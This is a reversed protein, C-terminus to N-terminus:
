LYTEILNIAFRGRMVMFMKNKNSTSTQEFTGNKALSTIVTFHTRMSRKKIQSSISDTFLFCLHFLYYCENLTNCTMILVIQMHKMVYEVFCRLFCWPGLWTRWTTRWMVFVRLNFNTRLVRYSKASKFCRALFPRNVCKMGLGYSSGSSRFDLLVYWNKRM